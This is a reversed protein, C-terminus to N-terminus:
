PRAATLPNTTRLDAFRSFDRDATWLEHVGHTACLAAIRGGLSPVLAHLAEAYAAAFAFGRRDACAGGLAARDITSAATARHATTALRWADLTATALVPPSSALLRTLLADM